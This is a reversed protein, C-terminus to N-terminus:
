WGVRPKVAGADTEEQSDGPTQKGQEESIPLEELQTNLTRIQAEDFFLERLRRDGYLLKLGVSVGASKHILADYLLAADGEAKVQIKVTKVNKGM